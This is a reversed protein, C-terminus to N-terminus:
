SVSNSPHEVLSATIYAIARHWQVTQRLLYQTLCERIQAVEKPPLTQLLRDGYSLREAGSGFWRDIFQPTIYLDHAVQEVACHTKFGASQFATLIEDVEWNLLPDGGKIAYIQEEAKVWRKRLKAELTGAPLLDYL